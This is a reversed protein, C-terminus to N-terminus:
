RDKSNVLIVLFLLLLSRVAVLDGHCGRAAAVVAEQRSCCCCRVFSCCCRAFLCCCRERLLWEGCRDVAVAELVSRCCCCRVFSCGFTGVVPSLLLCQVICLALGCLQQVLCRPHWTALAVRQVCPSVAFLPLSQGFTGNGQRGDVVRANRWLCAANRGARVGTCAVALGCLELGRCVSCRALPFWACVAKRLVQQVPV